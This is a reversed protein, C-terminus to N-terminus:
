FLINVFVKSIIIKIIIIMIMMIIYIKSTPHVIFPVQCRLNFSNRIHIHNDKNKNKLVEDPRAHKEDVHQEKLIKTM